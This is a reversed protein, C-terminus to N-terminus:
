DDELKDIAYRPRRLWDRRDSERKTTAKGSYDAATKISIAGVRLYSSQAIVPYQLALCTNCMQEGLHKSAKLLLETLLDASTTPINGADDDSDRKSRAGASYQV